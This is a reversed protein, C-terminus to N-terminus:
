LTPRKKKYIKQDGLYFDLMLGLTPKGRGGGIIIGRVAIPLNRSIAEAHSTRFVKADSRSLYGLKEGQHKIVVASPDHENDNEPEITAWFMLRGDVDATISRARNLAPQYNSEGVVEVFGGAGKYLVLANEPALTRDFSLGGAASTPRNANSATPFGSTRSSFFLMVLLISFGLAAVEFTGM